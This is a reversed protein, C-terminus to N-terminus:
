RVGLDSLKRILEPPMDADDKDVALDAPAQSPDLYRWGQFPRHSRHQTRVLEPSLIIACKRVGDAALVERLEMIRQRAQLMGRIVWYLSGGALLDQERRPRMRTVHSYYPAENKHRLAACRRAISAELDEVTEVGVCLKILHVTM